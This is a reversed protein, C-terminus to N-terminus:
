FGGTIPKCFSSAMHHESSSGVPARFWRGSLESCFVTYRSPHFAGGFGTIEGDHTSRHDRDEPSKLAKVLNDALRM